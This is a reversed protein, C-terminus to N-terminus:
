NNSLVEIKSKLINNKDQLNEVKQNLEKIANVLMYPLASIDYEIANEMMEDSEKDNPNIPISREKIMYPAIVQIDQAIIGVREQDGKFGGIGNYYFRMPNIKLIQDLGDGYPRIGKKLRRDSMINWNPNADHRM